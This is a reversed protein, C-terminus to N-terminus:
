YTITASLIQGDTYGCGLTWGLDQGETYGCSLSYGTLVKNYSTPILSQHTEYEDSESAGSYAGGYGCIPCYAYHRRWGNTASHSYVLHTNPCISYVPDDRYNPTNYCGGGTSSSGTHHHLNQVTYCGGGNVSDGTHYHMVYSVKGNTNKSLQGDIYGNGYGTNYQQTALTLINDHMVQFTADAATSVGKNTIASAVM